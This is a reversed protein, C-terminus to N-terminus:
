ASRERSENFSKCDICQVATPRAELRRVGIDAGCDVCYGYEGTNLLGLAEDIKNILIRERERTRIEINIEEDQAARDLPDAPVPGEDQLSHVTQSAQEMLRQKLALLIKKFHEIQVSSMYEEEKLPYPEIGLSELSQQTIKQDGM